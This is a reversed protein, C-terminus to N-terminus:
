NSDLTEGLVAHNEVIVLDLYSLLVRIPLMFTAAFVICYAFIAAYRRFLISLDLDCVTCVVTGQM